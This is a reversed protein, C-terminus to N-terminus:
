PQHVVHETPSTHSGPGVLGNGALHVIGLLVILVVVIIGFIKVWRPLSPSSGRETKSM